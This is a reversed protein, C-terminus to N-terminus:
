PNVSVTEPTVTVPRGAPIVKTKFLSSSELGDIRLAKLLYYPRSILDFIGATSVNTFIALIFKDSNSTFFGFINLLFEIM